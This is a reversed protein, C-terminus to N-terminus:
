ISLIAEFGGNEPPLFVTKSSQLFIFNEAQLCKKASPEKM